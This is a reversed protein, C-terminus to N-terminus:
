ARLMQRMLNIYSEARDSASPYLSVFEQADGILRTRDLSSKAFFEAIVSAASVADEPKFYNAHNKCCDRIFPFDSSFLPKKMLMSEIPVASFCELLSPFVVGDMSEYFTPCQALTLPGVNNITKKFHETCAEWEDPVFTVFFEADLNHNRKLALKICPLLDLNKHPYNRSILGLRISSLQMNANNIPLWRDPHSFISDVASNVVYIEKNRFSPMKKLGVKVHELEVVLSDSRSFFYKQIEFKLRMFFRNLMSVKLFARSNPYIISPQAFGVIHNKVKTMSYAPGFVTFVLDFGSIKEALSKWLATIGIFDAVTVTHFNSLDTGLEILNKMVKTSVLISVDFELTKKLSVSNIFSSAVAVAGGVHLNSCNILVHKKREDVM